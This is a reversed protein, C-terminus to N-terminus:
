GTDTWNWRIGYSLDNRSLHDEIQRRGHLFQHIVRQIRLAGTDVTLELFISRSLSLSPSLCVSLTVKKWGIALNPIQYKTARGGRHPLQQRKGAAGNGYVCVFVCVCLSLCVCIIRM